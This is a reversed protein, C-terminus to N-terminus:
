SRADRCSFSHNKKRGGQTTVSYRQIRNWSFHFACKDQSVGRMQFVLYLLVWNLLSSSVFSGKNPAIHSLLYSSNDPLQLTAPKIGVRPTDFRGQALCRVGLREQRAPQYRAHRGIATPTHIHTHIPSHSADITCRKPYIFPGNVM